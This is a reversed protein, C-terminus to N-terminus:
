PGELGQYYVELQKEREIRKKYDTLKRVMGLLSRGLGPSPRGLRRSSNQRNIEVFMGGFPRRTLHSEALTLWCHWAHKGVPRGNEGARAAFEDAAGWKLWRSSGDIYRHHL